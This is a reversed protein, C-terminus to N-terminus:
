QIICDDWGLLLLNNYLKADGGPTAQNTNPNITVELVFYLNKDLTLKETIETIGSLTIQKNTDVILSINGKSRIKSNNSADALEYM